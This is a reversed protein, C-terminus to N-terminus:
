QEYNYKFAQFYWSYNQYIFDCNHKGLIDLYDSKIPKIQGRIIHDGYPKYYNDDEQTVQKINNYDHKFNEIQLYDYIKCIEKEPNVCFDEFKIFLLNKHIKRIIVDYIIDLPGALPPVTNLYLNVRKDVTTGSLDKWNQLGTELNPNERFKKELSSVIARIDRVMVIMKPNEYFSNVFDYNISWGRCKEIVYKKNTINNYYGFLGNKYFGKSGQDVLNQDQAKFEISNSFCNRTQLLTECIGSTATSYIDPNQALVNQLLTSGSRPMSSQFFIKEVM